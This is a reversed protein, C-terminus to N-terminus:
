LDEKKETKTQKKIEKTLNTKKKEKSMYLFNVHILISLVALM